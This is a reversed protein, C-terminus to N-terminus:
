FEEWEGAQPEVKRLASAAGSVRGGASAVPAKRAHGGSSRTRAGLREVPDRSQQAGGVNFRSVADALSSAEMRLGQSAATTQEVMAANQQTV